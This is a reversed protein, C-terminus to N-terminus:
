GAVSLLSIPTIKLTAVPGATARFSSGMYCNPYQLVCPITAILTTFRAEVERCSGCPYTYLITAQPVLQLWNKFGDKQQLHYKKGHLPSKMKCCSAGPVLVGQVDNHLKNFQTAINLLHHSGLYQVQNSHETTAVIVDCLAPGQNIYIPM